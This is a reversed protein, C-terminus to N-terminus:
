RVEYKLLIEYLAKQELYETISVKQIGGLYECVLVKNMSFEFSVYPGFCLLIWDQFSLAFAKVLSRLVVM